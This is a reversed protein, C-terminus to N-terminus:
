GGYCVSANWNVRYLRKGETSNLRAAVSQLVMNRAYGSKDILVANKATRDSLIRVVAQSERTYSESTDFVGAVETLYAAYSSNADAAPAVDSPDVKAATQGFALTSFLLTWVLIYTMVKPYRENRMFELTSM